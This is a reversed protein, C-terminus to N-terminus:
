RSKLLNKLFEAVKSRKTCMYIFKVILGVFLLIILIVAEYFIIKFSFWLTEYKYLAYLSWVMYLFFPISLFVKCLLMFRNYFERIIVVWSSYRSYSYLGNNSVLKTYWFALLMSFGIFGLGFFQIFIIWILSSIIFKLLSISFISKMILIFSIFFYSFGFISRKENCKVSSHGNWDLLCNYCFEKKCVCTIHDCGEYKYVNRKCYICPRTYLSIRLETIEEFIMNTKEKLKQIYTMNTQSANGNIKWQYSCLSCVYPDQCNRNTFDVFGAFECGLKPCKIIDQSTNLYKQLRLNDLVKKQDPLIHKELWDRDIQKKCINNPCSLDEELLQLTDSNKIKVWEYICKPCVQCGCLPTKLSEFEFSCVICLLSDISSYM